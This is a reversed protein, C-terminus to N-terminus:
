WHQSRHRGNCAKASGKHVHAGGPGLLDLVLNHDDDPIWYGNVRKM